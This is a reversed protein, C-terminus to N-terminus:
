EDRIVSNVKRTTSKTLEDAISIAGPVHAM